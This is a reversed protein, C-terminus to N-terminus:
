EFSNAIKGLMEGLRKGTVAHSEEERKLQQQLEVVRSALRISMASAIRLNRQTEVLASDPVYGCKLFLFEIFRKFV